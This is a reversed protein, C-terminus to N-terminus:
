QPTPVGMADGDAIASSQDPSLREPSLRREAIDVGVLLMSGIFFITWFMRM